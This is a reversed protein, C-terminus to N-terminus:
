HQRAVQAYFITATKIDDLCLSHEEDGFVGANRDGLDVKGEGVFLTSIDQHFSNM